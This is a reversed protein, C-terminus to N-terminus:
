APTPWRTKSGADLLDLLGCSTGCRRRTRASRPPVLKSRTMPRSRTDSRASLVYLRIARVRGSFPHVDVDAIRRVRVLHDM